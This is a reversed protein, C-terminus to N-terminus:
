DRCSAFESTVQSLLAREDVRSKSVSQIRELHVRIPSLVERSDGSDEESMLDIFSPGVLGVVSLSARSFVGEETTFSRHRRGSGGERACDVRYM